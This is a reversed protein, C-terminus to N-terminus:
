NINKGDFQKFRYKLKHIETHLSYNKQDQNITYYYVLYKRFFQSFGYMQKADIGCIM